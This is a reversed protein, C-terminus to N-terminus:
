LGAGWTGPRATVLQKRVLCLDRGAMSGGPWAPGQPDHAWPGAAESLQAPHWAPSELVEKRVQGESGLKPAGERTLAAAQGM